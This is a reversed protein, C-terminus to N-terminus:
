AVTLAVWEEGDKWAASLIRGRVLQPSSCGVCRFEAAAPVDRSVECMFEFTEGCPCDWTDRRYRSGESLVPKKGVANYLM